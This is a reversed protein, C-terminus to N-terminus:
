NLRSRTTSVLVLASRLDVEAPLNRGRGTRVFLDPSGLPASELVFAMRGKISLRM